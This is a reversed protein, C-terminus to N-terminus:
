LASLETVFSDFVGMLPKLEEGKQVVATVAGQLGMVVVSVKTVVDFSPNTIKKFADNYAQVPYPANVIQKYYFEFTASVKESVGGNAITFNYTMKFGIQGPEESRTVIGYIIEGNILQNATKNVSQEVNVRDFYNYFPVSPNIATLGFTDEIKGNKITFLINKETKSEWESATTIFIDMGPATYSYTKNLEFSINVMPNFTSNAKSLNKIKDDFLESKNIDFKKCGLDKGSSAVQDIDVGNQTYETFQDFDWDEPMPFGLNGSWGTSMNSVFFNDIGNRKAHLCVNRTGYIGTKYGYRSLTSQVRQIYPIVTGDIDGEQFDVDVAFYIVTGVAFGLSEAADGALYGDTIGEEATFYKEEYGGDEYIPFISFGEAVLNNIEATTLFKDKEASGTGVTGTLYRGVTTFDVAKLAKIEALSLQTATDFAISDRSTNGNSTLLGKIVTLDATSSYPTLMMFKRFAEVETATYTDFSSNFEAKQNFGNVYLGWQILRVIKGTEGPKVTPTAAITAPGYAGNATDTDMGEEAQLAYILATNTDRQYIGDCPLIGFYATYDHNLEQQMTRIHTDGNEVLSFAMMDFLAKMFEVTVTGNGSLGADKQMSVVAAKTEASFTTNFDTPNIGKCWFAGQILKAINGKYGVKLSGIIPKLAAETQEGFGDAVPSIGLEHQLGERLSYITGWGTNGNETVKDYGSVSSYTANLWKQVELVKADRVQKEM